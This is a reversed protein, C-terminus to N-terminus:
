AKQEDSKAILMSLSAAVNRAMTLDPHGTWNSHEDLMFEALCSAQAHLGELTSAPTSSLLNLLEWRRDHLAQADKENNQERLKDQEADLRQIESWWEAHQDGEGPDSTTSLYYDFIAKPLASSKQRGAIIRGVAYHARRRDDETSRLEEASEM